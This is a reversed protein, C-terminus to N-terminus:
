YEEGYPNTTLAKFLEKNNARPNVLEKESTVYRHPINHAEILEIAPQAYELQTVYSEDKFEDRDHELYEEPVYVIASKIYKTLNKVEGTALRDELQGNDKGTYTLEEEGGWDWDYHETGVPAGKYKMNLKQGDLEFIIGIM